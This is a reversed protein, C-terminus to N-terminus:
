QAQKQAQLQQQIKAKAEAEVEKATKLDNKRPGDFFMKDAFIQKARLHVPVEGQPTGPITKELGQPV